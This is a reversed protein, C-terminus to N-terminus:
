SAQRTFASLKGPKLNGRAFIFDGRGQDAVAQNAPEAPTQSDVEELVPEGTAAEVEADLKREQQDMGSARSLRHKLSASPNDKTPGRYADQVNPGFRSLDFGEPLDAVPGIFRSDSMPDPRPSVAAIPMPESAVPEPEVVMAPEAAAPEAAAMDQWEAEQAEDERRRRRRRLALAGGGLVLLGLGGLGATPLVDISKVTAPEGAVPAAVAAPAAVPAAPLPQVVPPVAVPAVIAAAPAVTRVPNTTHAMSPRSHTVTSKAATKHAATPAVPKPAMVPAVAPSLPDAAVPAPTAEVIPTATPDAPVDQAFAASSSLAIVAAIATM